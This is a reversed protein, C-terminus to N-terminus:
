KMRKEMIAKELEAKYSFNKPERVVGIISRIEPDIGSLEDEGNVETVSKLYSEVLDSLSRGQRRAYSKARRIVRKDINLTLKTDM